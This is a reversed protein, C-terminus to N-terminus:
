PEAEGDSVRAAAREIESALVALHSALRAFLERKQLDTALESTLRCEAADARLKELQLRMDKM